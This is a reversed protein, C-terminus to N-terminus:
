TRPRQIEPDTRDTRKELDHWYKQNVVVSYGDVNFGLNFGVNNKVLQELLWAGNWLEINRESALERAGDDFDGSTVVAAKDYEKSSPLRGVFKAITNVGIADGRSRLKCQILYRYKGGTPTKATAHMDIGRDDSGGTHTVDLDMRELLDKCVLEFQFGATNRDNSRWILMNFQHTLSAKADVTLRFLGLYTRIDDMLRVDEYHLMKYSTALLDQETNAEIVANNHNHRQAAWDKLDATLEDLTPMHSNLTQVFADYHHNYEAIRASIQDSRAAGESRIPAATRRLSEYEASHGSVRHVENMENDMSHLREHLKHLNEEEGALAARREDLWANESRLIRGIEDMAGWRAVLERRADDLAAEDARLDGGDHAAASRQDLDKRDKVLADRRRILEDKALDDGPQHHAGPSAPVFIRVTDRDDPEGATPTAQADTM